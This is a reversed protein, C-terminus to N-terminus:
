GGGAARRLLLVAKGLQRREEPSYLSRAMMLGHLLDDVARQVPTRARDTLVLAPRRITHILLARRNAIHTIERVRM